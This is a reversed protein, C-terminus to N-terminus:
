RHYLFHYESVPIEHIPVGLEKKAALIAEAEGRPRLLFWVPSTPGVEWHVTMDWTQNL